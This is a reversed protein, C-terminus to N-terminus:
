LHAELTSFVVFTHADGVTWHTCNGGLTRLVKLGVVSDAAVVTVALVQGSAAGGSTTDSVVYHEWDLQYAPHVFSFNRPLYSAMGAPVQGTPADAAYSGTAEYQAVAAARITNFDGAAQAAIADRRVGDYAPMAIRVLVAVIALTILMEVLTFGGEARRRTM